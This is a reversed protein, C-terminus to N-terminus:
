YYGNRKNLMASGMGQITSSSQGFTCNGRYTNHMLLNQSTSEWPFIYIYKHLRINTNKVKMLDYFIYFFYQGQIIIDVKIFLSLIHNHIIKKPYIDQHLSFCWRFNLYVTILYMYIYISGSDNPKLWSDREKLITIIILCSKKVGTFKRMCM